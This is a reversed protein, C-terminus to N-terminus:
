SKAHNGTEITTETKREMVIKIYTLATAPREMREPPGERAFSSRVNLRLCRMVMDCASNIKTRRPVRKHRAPKSQEADDHPRNAADGDEGRHGDKRARCAYTCSLPCPEKATRCDGSTTTWVAGFSSAKAAYYNCAGDTGSGRPAVTGHFLVSASSSRDAFVLAAATEKPLGGKNESSPPLPRPPARHGGGGNAVGQRHQARGTRATAPM